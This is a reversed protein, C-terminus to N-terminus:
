RYDSDIFVSDFSDIFAVCNFRELTVSLLQFLFTTERPDGSASALGKGLQSLFLSM